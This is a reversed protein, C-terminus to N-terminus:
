STLSDIKAHASAAKASLGATAAFAAFAGALQSPDWLLTYVVYVGAGIAPWYKSVTSLM